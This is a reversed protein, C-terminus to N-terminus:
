AYSERRAMTGLADNIQPATQGVLVGTDLVIQNGSALYPLYTQLLNAIDTNGGGGSKTLPQVTAAGNSVTLLEAGAEGVIASGDLVTGGKALLPIKGVEGFSSGTVSNVWKITSNIGSFLSNIMGIIQNIPQKALAVLGDFIGGFIEKVGLWARKWNGTFVGRIFDILGDLIKKSADWMNKMNAMFANIQEGIVGGFVKTFDTAFINQLFYDLRMLLHQIEDGKTAFLAVLGVIAATIAVIPNALIVAWLANFAGALIPLVTMLSGIASVVSGLIVLVPALAAIFLGVGLIVKRQNEDMGNLKDMFKQIHEIVQRIVPMMMDGFSIALEEIQSKIIQMQGAANDQMINAMAEASGATNDFATQLQELSIGMSNFVDVAEGDTMQEELLFQLEKLDGNSVKIARDFDESSVGFEAFKKKMEEMPIGADQAAQYFSELNVSAGYVSDKLKQYDEDSANVIALLGSLGTKGALAAAKQAKLADESSFANFTLEKLKKDFQKQTINGKQLAEELDILQDTFDDAPMKVDKFAFRLDDMLQWLPKIEGDIGDLSLGLYAMADAAQKGPQAMNTLLSRLSTGAQSAKIGSNAMLGLAVAIDESSYKMAGALPAVYKFSEGMMSVNTNASSSAAALQDAFKGADEAGMGFATLADTVIDSTTGLAEGSAAALNLIGEIGSMMQEPDWGAMAMYNFADAAESASFKTQAGMERAKARLADFEEGTAGSVAAVQSMSSDFDATIKVAAAGLGAVGASLPMLKQGAGTINDGLGKIKEGAEAIKQVAVGSENAATTLQKLKQETDIIERQLADYQSQSIEGNKFAEDLESQATKLESLKEKTEGVADKLLRHKQALLETNGPDMKLLKEVDKLERQTQSIEKNVDGLAKNIGSTDAGLEITIGRIKTAM